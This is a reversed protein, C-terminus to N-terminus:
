QCHQELVRQLQGLGFPKVLVDDMGADLCRQRDEPLASATLAVIPTHPWNREAEQARIRQTAGLGDLQPMHMDMLVMDPRAEEYTQVAQVGNIAQHVQMGLSHLVACALEMNVENDEAVLVRRGALNASQAPIPVAPPASAPAPPLDLVFWFESGQEPESEVDLEGGLLQVLRRVIALGLGSGGFRRTTSSDAQMFPEFIRQRELESLGIGTDRVAVRWRGSDLAKVQLVVSGMATFKVANSLLNNLIQALRLPDGVLWAHALAPEWALILALGKTHAQPEFLTIADRTLQVLDFPVHEIELRGAEIRSFDLVDDIVGLLLRGSREIIQAQQRQQPPLPSDLLQQAMGLMGHLPTRIEHSMNALFQSKVRSAAKLQALAVRRRRLLRYIWLTLGAIVADLGLTGLGFFWATRRWSALMLHETASAKVVLPYHDVAHAAVLRMSSDSADSMRPESTMVSTGAHGQALAQDLARFSSADRYSKGLAEHRAPHRALLTGDRRLLAITSESDRLNISGYFKEFYDVEIAALTLGLIEGTTSRLKRALYFTWRGTARSRVPASLYLELAPDARHAQFYERDAANIPVTPFSRSSGVVQGDLGLIIIAEILPLEAEREHLFDFTERTAAVQRLREPSDLGLAQMHDVTRGLVFDATRMSQAAHEAATASFNAMYLRWTQRSDERSYWLMLAAAASVMVILLAGALLVLADRRRENRSVPLGSSTGDSSLPM